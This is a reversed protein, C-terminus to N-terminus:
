AQQGQRAQEKGRSGGDLSKDVTGWRGRGGSWGRTKKMNRGGGYCPM